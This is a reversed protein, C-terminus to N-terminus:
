CGLRHSFQHDASNKIGHAETGLRDQSIIVAGSIGVTYGTDGTDGEEAELNEGGDALAADTCSYKEASLYEEQQRQDKDERQEPSDVADQPGTGDCVTEGAYRSEEQNM